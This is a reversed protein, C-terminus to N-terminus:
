DPVNVKSFDVHFRYPVSISCGAAMKELWGSAVYTLRQYLDINLSLNSQCSLPLTWGTMCAPFLTSRALGPLEWVKAKWDVLSLPNKIDYKGDSNQGCLQMDFSWEGAMGASKELVLFDSLTSSVSTTLTASASPEPGEKSKKIGITISSSSSYTAENNKTKPESIIAAAGALRGLTMKTTLIDQFFAREGNNNWKLKGPTYGTGFATVRLFKAAPKPSAYIEVLLPLAVTATQGKVVVPKKRNHWTYSKPHYTVATPTLFYQDGAAGDPV